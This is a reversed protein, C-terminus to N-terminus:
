APDNAFLLEAREYLVRQLPNAENESKKRSEWIVRMPANEFRTKRILEILRGTVSEADEGRHLRCIAGAFRLRLNRGTIKAEIYRM